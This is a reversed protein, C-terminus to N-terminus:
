QTKRNDAYTQAAAEVLDGLDATDGGANSLRDWCERIAIVANKETGYKIHCDSDHPFLGLSNETTGFITTMEM